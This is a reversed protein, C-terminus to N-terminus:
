IIYNLFENLFLFNKINWLQYYFLWMKIKIKRWQNGGFCSLKDYHKRKKEKNM